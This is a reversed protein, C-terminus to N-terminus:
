QTQDQAYQAGDAVAEPSSEMAAKMATNGMGGMQNIANPGLQQVMQMMLQQQQRQEIEEDSPILGNTDIGYSAASRKMLETPNIYQMAVEPGLVQVVESLFLQLNRQDHGRGIAQLGTTVVPKVTEPLKEVKLRKEMRKEFLRVAPLQLEAALLTYVGGLADDLESAMFRIEEATVREGARQVSAHMLFASALRKGIEEAMQSAVSLDQQKQAQVVTVDDARGSRVDGNKAEAVVKMSTAGAPNVLYLIRAAAASGEVLVETLAELSDLDGLYEEVYSRGYHEGPQSSLRLVLFEMEDLPFTGSGPLELGEVEQYVVWKNTTEDLYVHTYLDVEAEEMDNPKRSKFEELKSVATKYEKPLSAFDIKENIVLELLTGSPDRRCVFQDLRFARAKLRPDRPIQVCINGVTVLHLFTQFAIPRFLSTELEGVVARERRSLAKEVEGRGAGLEELTQDDIRYNFFPITPFLSLLLKSALTRVGRAGISQYPTPLDTSASHGQEPLIAPITLASCERGRRLFPERDTKLSEYRSKATIEKPLSVEAM